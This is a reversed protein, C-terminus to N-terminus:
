VSPERSEVFPCEFDVSFDTTIMSISSFRSQPICKEGGGVYDPHLLPALVCFFAAICHM